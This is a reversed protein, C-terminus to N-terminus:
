FLLLLLLIMFVLVAKYSHELSHLNNLPTKFPFTEFGFKKYFAPNLFLCSKKKM